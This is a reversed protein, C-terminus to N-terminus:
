GGLQHTLTGLYPNTQNIMGPTNIMERYISGCLNAMTQLNGQYSKNAFYMFAIFAIGLVVFGIVIGWLLAVEQKKNRTLDNVAQTQNIIFQRNDQDLVSFVFQGGQKEITIPYFEGETTEYLKLGRKLHRSMDMSEWEDRTFSLVSKHSKPSLFKTWFKGDVSHTKERLKAFEIIWAGNKNVVRFTDRIWMVDSPDKGTQRAIDVINKYSKRTALFLIIGGFFLICLGIILLQIPSLM